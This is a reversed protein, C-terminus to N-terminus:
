NPAHIGMAGEGVFVIPRLYGEELSNAKLTAICAQSVQEPTFEPKILVMKCTDFLRQIHERLRFVYTKGNARRYARIGEFAGLGYHLSHTLLHVQAGDWSVLEGDLWIKQLKDVM